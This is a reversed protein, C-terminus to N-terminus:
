LITDLIKMRMEGTLKKVINNYEVFVIKNGVLKKDCSTLRQMLMNQFFPYEILDDFLYDITNVELLKEIKKMVVNSQLYDCLKYLEALQTINFDSSLSDVHILRSWQALIVTDVPLKLEEAKFNGELITKFYQSSERLDNIHFYFEGDNTQVAIKSPYDEDPLYEYTKIDKVIRQYLDNSLSGSFMAIINEDEEYHTTIFDSIDRFGTINEFTIKGSHYDFIILIKVKQIYACRPTIVWPRNSLEVFKDFVSELNHAIKESKGTHINYAEVYKFYLIYITDNYFWSKHFNIFYENSRDSFLLQISTDDIVYHDRKCEDNFLLHIKHDIIGMTILGDSNVVYGHQTWQETSIDFKIIDIKQLGPSDDFQHVVAPGVKPKYDYTMVYYIIKEKMMVSVFSYEPEPYISPPILLTLQNITKGHKIDFRYRHDDPAVTYRVLWYKEHYIDRFMQLHEDQNIKDYNAPMEQWKYQSHQKISM